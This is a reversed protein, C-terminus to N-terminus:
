KSIELVVSTHGRQTSLLVRDSLDLMLTFGVGLTQQTSFGPALTARPLNRFDIGPGEDSISVQASKGRRFIAYTAKGGHKVGNTLAECVAVIFENATSVHPFEAMLTRRIDARAGSLEKYTTITSPQTVQEGLV